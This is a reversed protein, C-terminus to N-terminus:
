VMSCAVSPPGVRVRTSSWTVKLSGHAGPDRDREREGEARPPEAKGPEEPVDGPVARDAAVGEERRWVDQHVRGDADVAQDARPREEPPPPTMAGGGAEQQAAHADQDGDGARREVFPPVGVDALVHVEPTWGMEDAEGARHEDDEAQGEGEGSVGAVAKLRAPPHRADDQEAGEGIQNVLRHDREVVVREIGPPARGVEIWEEEGEEQRRDEDRGDAGKAGARRRRRGGDEGDLM